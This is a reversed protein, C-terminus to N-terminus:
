PTIVFPTLPSESVVADDRLGTVQWFYAGPTLVVDDPRAIATETVDPSTWVSSGDDRRVDVRYQDADGEPSWAFLAPAVSIEGSPETVAISPLTGVARLTEVDEPLGAPRTQQWIVGAGVAIVLTAAIALLRTVPAGPPASEVDPESAATDTQCSLERALRWVEACESCAVTHEVLSEVEAADLEGRVAEWLREAEPHAGDAPRTTTRSAFAERLREIEPLDLRTM